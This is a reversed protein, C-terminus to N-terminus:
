KYNPGDFVSVMRCQIDYYLIAFYSVGGLEPLTKVHKITKNYYPILVMIISHDNKYWVKAKHAVHQVLTCFGLIFFSEYMTWGKTYNNIFFCDGAIEATKGALQSQECKLHCNLKKTLIKQDM